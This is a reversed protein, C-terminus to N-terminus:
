GGVPSDTGAKLLQGNKVQEYVNEEDDFFDNVDDSGPRRLNYDPMNVHNLVDEATTGKKISLVEQTGSGPAKVKIEKM